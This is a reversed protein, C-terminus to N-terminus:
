GKYDGSCSTITNQCKSQLVMHDTSYCSKQCMNISCFIHVNEFQSVANQTLVFIELFVSLFFVLDKCDTYTHTDIYVKLDADLEEDGLNEYLLPILFKKRGYAVLRNAIRFETM